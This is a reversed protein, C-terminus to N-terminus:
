SSWCAGPVYGLGKVLLQHLFEVNVKENVLIMRDKDHWVGGKVGGRVLYIELGLLAKFAPRIGFGMMFNETPFWSGLKLKPISIYWSTMKTPNKFVPDTHVMAGIFFIGRGFVYPTHYIIKRCKNLTFVWGNVYGFLVLFMSYRRCFYGPYYGVRRQNELLNGLDVPQLDWTLHKMLKQDTRIPGTKPPKLPSPTSIVRLLIEAVKEFM